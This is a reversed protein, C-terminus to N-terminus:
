NPTLVKHVVGFGGYAFLEKHIINIMNGTTWDYDVRGRHLRQYSFGNFSHNVHTTVASALFIGGQFFIKLISLSIASPTTATSKAINREPGTFVVAPM